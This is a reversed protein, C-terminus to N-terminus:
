SKEPECKNTKKINSNLAKQSLDKENEVESRKRWRFARMFGKKEQEEAVEQAYKKPTFTKKFLKLIARHYIILLVIDIILVNAILLIMYPELSKIVAWIFRYSYIMLVEIPRFVAVILAYQWFKMKSAGCVICLLDTTMFPLLFLWPVGKQGNRAIWDLKSELSKRGFLWFLLKRGGFRGLCYLAVSSLLIAIICVTFAIWFGQATNGFLLFAATIFATTTFPIVNMFLSQVIYLCVFIVYKWAGLDDLFDKLGEGSRDFVGLPWLALCVLSIVAALVLVTGVIKWIKQKM